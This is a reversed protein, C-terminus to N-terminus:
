WTNPRCGVPQTILDLIAPRVHAAAPSSSKCCSCRYLLVLKYVCVCLLCVATHACRMINLETCGCPGALTGEVV